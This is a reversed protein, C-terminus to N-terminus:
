SRAKVILLVGGIKAARSTWRLVRSEPMFYRAADLAAPVLIVAGIWPEDIGAAVAMGRTDREVPGSRTFAAGSYMVSNLVNFALVGKLFPAHEHRLRPRRMLLIESTAHQVWFGASSIAFERASSVPDHTLAFFPIGAGKVKRVGVGAGFVVDFLIHGSEHMVLGLAGGAVFKAMSAARAEDRTSPPATDQARVTTAALCLALAVACRVRILRTSRAGLNGGPGPHASVHDGDTGFDTIAPEDHQSQSVSPATTSSVM